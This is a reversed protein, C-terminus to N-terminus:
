EMACGSKGDQLDTFTPILCAKSWHPFLSPPTGLTASPNPIRTSCIKPSNPRSISLRSMHRCRNEFEMRGESLLTPRCQSLATRWFARHHLPPLPDIQRRSSRLLNVPQDIIATKRTQPPHSDTKRHIVRTYPTSSPAFTSLCPPGLLILLTVSKLCCFLIRVKFFRSGMGEESSLGM